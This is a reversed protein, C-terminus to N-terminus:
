YAVLITGNYYHLRQEYTTVELVYFYVGPKVHIGLYTGDWYPIAPTSEFIKEGWRNYVSFKGYEIGMGAPKFLDNLGDNNPSFSNPFWPLYKYQVYVQQEMSDTCGFSNRITQRINFTGSDIFNHTFDPSAYSGGDSLSYLWIDAGSSQDKITVVSNFIDLPVGSIEFGPVPLPYITVNRFTDYTCNANNAIALTIKFTGADMFYKLPIEMSSRTKDGFNWSWESITSEGSDSLQIIRIDDFVCVDSVNFDAKLPKNVKINRELSDSCGFSNRSLLKVDYNGANNFTHDFGSATKITGDGLSWTQSLTPLSDSTALSKLRLINDLCPLSFSFDVKPIPAVYLISDRAFLCNEASTIRMNVIFYGFASPKQGFSQGTFNIGDFTWNVQAASSGNYISQDTFIFNDSQCIGSYGFVPIVKPHVLITKELSDFCNKESTLHLKVNFLGGQNYLHQASFLTDTNGDGWTWTTYKILGTKISSNNIPKFIEYSCITDSVFDILPKPYIEFTKFTSDMCGYNTQVFHLIRLSDTKTNQYSLSAGSFFNSNIRWNLMTLSDKGSSLSQISAMDGFCLKGISFDAIPQPNLKIASDLLSMCGKDSIGKLLVNNIGANSFAHQIKSNGIFTDSELIWESSGIFGESISSLDTFNVPNNQCLISHSFNLVPIPSAKILQSISDVCGATNYTKLKVNFSDPYSLVNDFQNFVQGNKEWLDFAPTTGNYNTTPWLKLTDKECMTGITFGATPKKYVIVNISDETFCSAADIIKIRFETSTDSFVKALHKNPILKPHNKWLYNLNGTGGTALKGIILTDNECANTSDDLSFRIEPRISVLMTDFSVCSLRNTQLVLRLTTDNANLNRFAFLPNAISDNQILNDPFWRYSYENSGVAGLQIIENSCIITDNGANFLHIDDFPSWIRVCSCNSTDDVLVLKCIDATPISSTLNYNVNQGSNIKALTYIYFVTDGADWIKNQNRDAILFLKTPTKSITGGKNSIFGSLTLNESNAGSTISYTSIGYVFLSGKEMVVDIYRSGTAVNISCFTSDKVCLADQKVASQALLPVVNACEIKNLVPILKFSFNSSDGPVINQPYTWELIQNGNFPLIVPKPNPSNRTGKFSSSDFQFGVPLYFRFRDNSGTNQPGLFIIRASIQVDKDCPRITDAVVKVDSYYPELIGKIEINNSLAVSARVPSGCKIKAKPLARIFSGSSFNCDTEVYFRITISNSTIDGTGSFGDKLSPILSQLDWEHSNGSLLNPMALRQFSSTTKHKYMMLSDLIKVGEPLDLQLKLDYAKSEEVNTVTVEYFISACLDKKGSNEKITTQLLTPIPDLYILVRERNCPYQTITDPYGSCNWGAFVELSDLSCSSYVARIVYDTYSNISLVGAKYIGGREALFKGTTLSKVDVVKIGLQRGFALWANGAASTGSNNNLRVTWEVTDKTALVKITVPNLKVIPMNFRILDGASASPYTVIGKGMPSKQEFDFDYNVWEQTNPQVECGPSIKAYFLGYFGDDSPWITGSSDNYLPAIDFFTTDGKTGSSKLNAETQLVTQLTGATRYDYLISSVVSYGKPLMMRIKSLRAWNRYEYPFMNGGAYNSCCPGISLYYNQSIYIDNCGYLEYSGPSWNTFYYGILSYNGSFTDCQYKQNNAPNSVTSLYFQNEFTSELVAGGTNKTVKYLIKLSVSDGAALAYGTGCKKSAITIKSFDFDFTGFNGSYSSTIKVSDCSFKNKGRFTEIIGKVPTLYNGYLVKSQAYAYDWFFPTGMRTVVGSFTTQITDGFMARYTKIKNFDLSGTTDPLGNDTNDPLGYSIRAVDFKTFRMGGNCTSGCHVRLSGTVCYINVTNQTKCGPNPNYRINLGYAISKSQSLSNCDGTIKIRLEAQNLSINPPAFVARVTDGIQTVSKPTWKLGNYALYEFDAKALSHKIGNTLILDHVFESNSTYGLFSSYTATYFLSKTEGNAIDSPNFASMAFYNFYGVWGWTEVISNFNQCQDYFSAAYKWGGIYMALNCGSPICSYVKWKYYLTDDVGINDVKIGFAGVPNSGLCAFQVDTRNYSLNAPTYSSDKGKSGLRMVISKEDIRSNMVNYFGTGYSQFIDITVNRARDTGRNIVMISMDFASDSGFCNHSSTQPTITLVPAVSKIIINAKDTKFQCIAADCGWEVRFDTGLNSCAGIALSDSILVSENLDFWNDNNGIKKFATSDFYHFITDAKSVIKGGLASVVTIGSANIQWVRFEKIAGNGFNKIEIDRTFKQGIVGTFSRNSINNIVLSPVAVTYPNGINQDSGGTYKATAANSLIGANNIINLVTCNARILIKLTVSQTIGLNPLGFVPKSLNSINKETIGSTANSGVVYQIGSPMSLELDINSVTNITINRVEISLTDSKGCVSIGKPNTQTIKLQNGQAFM